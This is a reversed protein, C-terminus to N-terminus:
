RAAAATVATATALAAMRAGAERNPRRNAKRLPPRSALLDIPRHCESAVYAQVRPATARATAAVATTTASSDTTTPAIAPAVPDRSTWYAIRPATTPVPGRRQGGHVAQHFRATRGARTAIAPSVPARHSGAGSEVSRQRTTSRTRHERDANMNTTSPAISAATNSRACHPVPARDHHDPTPHCKANPSGNVTPAPNEGKRCGM